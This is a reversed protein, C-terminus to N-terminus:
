RTRWRVGGRFCASRPGRPGRERRGVGTRPDRVAANRAGRGRQRPLPNRVSWTRTTRSRRPRGRGARPRRPRGAWSSTTTSCRPSSRASSRASGGSGSSREVRAPRDGPRVLAGPEDGRRQDFRRRPHGDHDHPRDHLRLRGQALPPRRRHRLHRLRPLLHPRNRGCPRQRRHPQRRRGARRPQGANREIDRFCLTLVGAAALAGALQAIIYAIARNTDIRRTVLMAITVAPNFHGGSIHGAAMAMLGIALGHALAIAVIDNGQTLIIAGVGMFVLAFPGIAEVILARMLERDNVM